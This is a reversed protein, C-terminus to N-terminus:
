NAKNQNKNGDKMTGATSEYNSKDMTLNLPDNSRETTSSMM